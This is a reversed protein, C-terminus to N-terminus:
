AAAKRIAKLVAAASKEWSLAEARERARNGASKRFEPDTALRRMATTLAGLDGPRVFVGGGELLEPLPSETTAIVPSGCAAAEVAPLGFGECESPLVLGLSNSHIASLEEDSVFGTWKVLEATGEQDIASEISEVDTYFDDLDRTGVLLLYPADTGMERAIAAHAHILLPINKHRSFGGVYVLWEAGAPLDSTAPPNSNARPRYEASPAEVAVTIKERPIGLVKVLDEAAYQSVTVFSRAQFIALKMKLGWLIRTKASPFVLDPFREPIADHITVVAPLGPPLPHYTYVSPFFFVDVKARQVAGTMRAMDWLGRHENASAARSPPTTLNSVSVCTINPATVDFTELSAQDLFCVLEDHPALAAMAPIIERAFRGYGRRNAWSTADIGFRM